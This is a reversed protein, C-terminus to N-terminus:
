DVSKLIRGGEGSATKGTPFPFTTMSSLFYLWGENFRSNQHLVEFIKEGEKGLASVAGLWACSYLGRWVPRPQYFCTNASSLVNDARRQWWLFNLMALLMKSFRKASGGWLQGTLLGPRTGHAGMVSFGNLMMFGGDKSINVVSDLDQTKYRPSPASRHYCSMPWQHRRLAAAATKSGNM